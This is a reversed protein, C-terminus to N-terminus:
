SSRFAAEHYTKIHPGLFVRAYIRIAAIGDIILSSSTFFALAVQNEHIHTFIIDEGIFTPTIPFGTLGLCSLLFVFAYKPHEYAHGNFQNLDVHTERNKLKTITIYGIAGMLVIGSLYLLSQTYMYHENFSVALVIWFHNMIILTWALIVNKRETYSKLVMTFGIFSIVTPIYDHIMPPINDQFYLAVLGIMYVPIFYYLVNKANVFNLSRGM